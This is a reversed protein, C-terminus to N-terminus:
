FEEMPLLQGRPIGGPALTKGDNFLHQRYEAGYAVSSVVRFFTVNIAFCIQM